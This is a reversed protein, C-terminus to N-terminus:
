KFKLGAYGRVARKNIYKVKSRRLKFKSVMSRGFFNRNLHIKKGTDKCWYYYKEYADESTLFAEPNQDEELASNAWEEFAALAWPGISSEPPKRKPLDYDLETDSYQLLEVPIGRYSTGPLPILTTAAFLGNDVEGRVLARGLEMDLKECVENYAGLRQEFFSKTRIENKLHVLLYIANGHRIITIDSPHCEITTALAAACLLAGERKEVVVHFPLMSQTDFHSPLIVPETPPQSLGSYHALTFYIRAMDKQPYIPGLVEALRKFLVPLTPVFIPPNTYVYEDGQAAVVQIM